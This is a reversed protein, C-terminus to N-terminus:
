DALRKLLTLPLHWTFPLTSHLCSQLDILNWHCSSNVKMRVKKSRRAYWSKDLLNRKKNAKYDGVKKIKGNKKKQKFIATLNLWRWRFFHKEYKLPFAKRLNNKKKESFYGIEPFVSIEQSNTFYFIQLQM